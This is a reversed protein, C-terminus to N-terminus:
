CTGAVCKTLEDLLGLGHLEAPQTDDQLALPWQNSEQDPCMSPNHTRDWNPMTRPAVSQHKERVYVNREREKEGSGKAKFYILLNKLFGLLLSLALFTGPSRELGVCWKGYLCCVHYLYLSWELINAKAACPVFLLLEYLAKATEGLWSSCVVSSALSDCAAWCAEQFTQCIDKQGKPSAKRHGWHAWTHARVCVCVSGLSSFLFNPGVVFGIM